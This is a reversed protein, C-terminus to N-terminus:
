KDRIRALLANYLARAHRAGRLANHPSKEREVGLVDSLESSSMSSGFLAYGIAHVDVTRYTFPWRSGCMDSVFKLFAIDFGAVNVGAVITEGNERCWGFFDHVLAFESPKSRDTLERKTFGNVRLADADLIRNPAVHCEGYYEKEGDESVAGISAISHLGPQLGTTEIDVFLM